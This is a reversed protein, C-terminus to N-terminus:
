VHKNKLHLYAIVGGELNYLNTFGYDNKLIKIAHSSRMGSKCFVIVKKSRSILNTKKSIEDLPIQLDILENIIPTENIERVDLFQFENKHHICKLMEEACYSRAETQKTECLVEYDMKVFEEINQPALNKWHDNRTVEIISTNMTLADFLLLKNVLPQGIGTIIKIAETAQFVGIIGPLVGIVGIESCSLVSSNAPPEPFLCRYTASLEAYKDRSNFVSVQGEYKYISGYVFAKNLLVCADNVLYRTSFNDSGDIILDYVSFLEIANLNNLRVPYAKINVYPNQKRLKEAAVEVKLKGLDDVSYLIQRQLNSEEIEDDDMIGIEGVGAAVLYLLTPCGLGGAGVVLVKYNKLKEQAEIGFDSLILHRNYREKEKENLM